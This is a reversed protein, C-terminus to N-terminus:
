THIYTHIYTHITKHINVHECKRPHRHLLSAGSSPTFCFALFYVCFIIKQSSSYSPVLQLLLYHYIIGPNPQQPDFLAKNILVEVAYFPPVRVRDRYYIIVNNSFSVLM